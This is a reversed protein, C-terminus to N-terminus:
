EDVLYQVCKSNECVCFAGEPHIVSDCHAGSGENAIEQCKFREYESTHCGGMGFNLECDSNQTCIDKQLDTLEEKCGSLIILLSLLLLIHISEM